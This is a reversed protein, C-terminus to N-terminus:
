EWRLGARGLAKHYEDSNIYRVAEPTMARSETGITVWQGNWYYGFSAYLTGDRSTHSQVETEPLVAQVEQVYRNYEDRTLPGNM